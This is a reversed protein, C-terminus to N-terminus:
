KQILRDCLTQRQDYCLGNASISRLAAELEAVRALLAAHSNVAAVLFAKNADLEKNNKYDVCDFDVLCIDGYDASSLVDGGIFWPTPTHQSAPQAATATPATNPTTNM